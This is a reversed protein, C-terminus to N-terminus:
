RYSKLLDLYKSNVPCKLELAKDYHEVALKYNGKLYYAVSLNNHAKGFNPNIALAKKYEAIAEDVLGKTRFAIGLNTHAFVFNPSIALAQRYQPIAEDVRGKKYYYLGLNNHAMPVRKPFAVIVYKWFVESNNWVKIQRITLQSLFMVILAILVVAGRRFNKYRELASKEFVWSIGAGILLFISVSPLYTYRDAAAQDGVQIIGLVPLLTIIYYAWVIVFLKNGQKAIWLCSWTIGFFLLVTLLSKVDFWHLEIPFPYFPVLKLPIFLKELYFISSKIANLLRTDLPLQTLSIVAGGSRQAMITIIASAVSGAFFPIKEWLVSLGKGAYLSLRKLPYIDLLLLVAPLTVAMPKSMLAFIFFIFSTFFWIGRHKGTFSSTYSLYALICLFVFFACLLDKREAVWAVSEVHLPHIGFLLATIGAVYLFKLSILPKKSPLSGKTIEQARLFLQICLLYVLATNLGHLFINTFHHGFPNLGWFAYDIAHSLWTLPHWNFSHFSTFMWYLSKFNLSHINENLYVYKEDDWNIFENNLAPIYLVISICFIIIAGVVMIYLFPKKSSGNNSMMCTANSQNKESLESSLTNIFSGIIHPKLGTQRALDEISLKRFNRKIFKKKKNSIASM